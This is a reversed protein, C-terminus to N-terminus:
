AHQSARRLSLRQLRRRPRAPGRLHEARRHLLELIEATPTFPDAVSAGDRLSVAARAEGDVEALLLPAPPVAAASDLAALRILAFGDDAYALRITIEATPLNM